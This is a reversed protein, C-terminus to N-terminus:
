DAAGAMDRLGGVGCFFSEEVPIGFKKAFEESRARGDNGGGRGGGDRLKNPEGEMLSVERDAGRTVDSSFGREDPVFSKMVTDPGGSTVGDINGGATGGTPAAGVIEEGAVDFKGV